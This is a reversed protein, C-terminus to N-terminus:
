IILKEIIKKELEISTKKLGVEKRLASVDNWSPILLFWVVLFIIASVVSNIILKSNM